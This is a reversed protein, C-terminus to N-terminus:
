VPDDGWTPTFIFFIQFWWGAISDHSIKTRPPPVTQYKKIYIGHVDDSCLIYRLQHAEKFAATKGRVLGGQAHSRETARMM